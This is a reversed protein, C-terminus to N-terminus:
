KGNEYEKMAEKFVDKLYARKAREQADIIGCLFWCVFGVTAVFGIGMLWEAM